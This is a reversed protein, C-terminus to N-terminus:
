IAADKYMSEEFFLVFHNSHFTKGFIKCLTVAKMWRIWRAKFWASYQGKTVTHTNIGNLQDQSILSAICNECFLLATIKQYSGEWIVRTCFLVM